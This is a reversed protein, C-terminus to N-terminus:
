DKSDVAGATENLPHAIASRWHPRLNQSAGKTRPTCSEAMFLLNPNMEPAATIAFASAVTKGDEVLRVSITATPYRVASAVHWFIQRRPATMHLPMNSQIPYAEAVGARIRRTLDASTLGTAMGDVTALVIGETTVIGFKNGAGHLREPTACSVLCITSLIFVRWRHVTM